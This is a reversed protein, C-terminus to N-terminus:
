SFKTMMRPVENLSLNQYLMVCINLAVIDQILNWDLIMLGLDLDCMSNYSFSQWPELRKHAYRNMLLVRITKIICPKTNM